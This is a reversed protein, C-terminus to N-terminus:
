VMLRHRLAVAGGDFRTVDRLELALDRTLGDFLRPGATLVAPHVVLFLEDVLGPRDLLPGLTAPGGAVVIDRGPEAKLAVLQTAVDGAMVDPGPPLSRSIAIKRMGALIAAFEAYAPPVAPLDEPLEGRAVQDWWPVVAEYVPRSMVWTDAQAFRGNAWAM